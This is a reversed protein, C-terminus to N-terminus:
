QDDDMRSIVFIEESELDQFEIEADSVSLIVWRRPKDPLAGPRPSREVKWITGSGGTNWKTRPRGAGPRPGGSGAGERKGGWNPM